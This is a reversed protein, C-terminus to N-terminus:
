LSTRLKPVLLVVLLDALINIVIYIAALVLAIAQVETADRTSVANVLLQGIGPYAFVAEVIIIGGVLYQIAQAFTQVSPALANRLAYRRMVRGEPLGNLRASTVFDQRVTEIMGARVQRSAFALSVGLLTAIPLILAAPEALPSQGAALAVPPLLDLQTFFIVVLFTGLVFEPLSGLRLTITSVVHDARKGARVGTYVGILLSLPVLILSALAGLIFSNLLPTGIISNISAASNGRAVAVASNGLDGHLVGGLWSFYQSLLPRDLGLAAELHAVTRPNANKGLVTEAVNGPLANTALFVLFSAVFLTAIGALIRKLLFVSIPHRAALARWRSRIQGGLASEASV